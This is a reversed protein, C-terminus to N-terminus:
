LGQNIFFRFSPGDATEVYVMDSIWIENPRSFVIYKIM